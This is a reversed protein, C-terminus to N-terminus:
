LGLQKIGCYENVIDNANSFRSIKMKKGNFKLIYENDLKKIHLFRIVDRVCDSIDGGSTPEFNVVNGKRDVYVRINRYRIEEKM